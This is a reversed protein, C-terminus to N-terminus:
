CRLAGRVQNEGFQCEDGLRFATSRRPLVRRSRTSEAPAGALAFPCLVVSARTASVTVWIAASLRGQWGLGCWWPWAPDPM